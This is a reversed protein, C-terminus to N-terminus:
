SKYGRYTATSTLLNALSRTASTVLQQSPIRKGRLPPDCKKSQRVLLVPCLALRVVEDAVSGLLWRALGRRGHTAMVILDIDETLTAAVIAQTPLADGLVIRVEFGQERLHDQQAQLYVKAEQYTYLEVERYYYYFHGRYGGQPPGLLRWAKLLILQSKHKRALTTALPLAEEALPSGDLPVLIRKLENM